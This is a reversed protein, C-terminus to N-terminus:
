MIESRICLQLWAADMGTNELPPFAGPQFSPETSKGVKQMFLSLGTSSVPEWQRVATHRRWKMELVAQAVQSEKERGSHSPM